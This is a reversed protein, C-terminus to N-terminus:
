TPIDSCHVVILITHPEDHYPSAKSQDVGRVRRTGREPRTPISAHPTFVLPWMRRSNVLYQINCTRGCVGYWACRMIRVTGRVFFYFLARVLM